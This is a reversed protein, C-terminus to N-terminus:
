GADEQDPHQHKQDKAAENGEDELILDLGGKEGIGPEVPQDDADKEDADDQRKM